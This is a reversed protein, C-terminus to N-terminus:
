ANWLQKREDTVPMCLCTRIDSFIKIATSLNVARQLAVFWVAVLQRQTANDMVKVLRRLMTKIMHAACVVVFSARQIRQLLVNRRLVKHCFFLYSLLEKGCFVKVVSNIMAFSFDVCVYKPRVRDNRHMSDVISTFVQLLNAINVARHDTTLFDLVPVNGPSMVCSYLYVVNRSTKQGVNSVITSIVSGTADFHM